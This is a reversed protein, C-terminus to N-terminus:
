VESPLLPIAVTSLTFAMWMATLGAGVLWLLHGTSLSTSGPMTSSYAEALVASTLVRILQWGLDVM